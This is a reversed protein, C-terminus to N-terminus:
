RREKRSALLLVKRDLGSFNGGPFLSFALSFLTPSIRKITGYGDFIGRSGLATPVTGLVQLITTIAIHIRHLNGSIGLRGLSSLNVGVKPVSNLIIM